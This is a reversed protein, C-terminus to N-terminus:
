KKDVVVKDLGLETNEGEGGGRRVGYMRTGAVTLNTAFRGTYFTLTNGRLTGVFSMTQGGGPTSTWGYVKTGEVREISLTYASRSGAGRPSIQTALGSWEGILTQPDAATQAFVPSGALVLLWALMIRRAVM